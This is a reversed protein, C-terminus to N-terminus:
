AAEVWIIGPTVATMITDIPATMDGENLQKTEIQSPVVHRHWM